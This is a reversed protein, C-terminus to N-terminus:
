DRRASERMGQRRWSDREGHDGGGDVEVDPAFRFVRQPFPISIGAADLARKAAVAVESRIRWLSATDPAHWYRITLQIASDDFSEVWVEPAPHEVVGDAKSVAELLVARARELDTDYDVGISVSTRRRGLTTHNVIPMTLVQASPVMVRQGDFTRLVVTRFNVDDVTGECGGAEVQDGRRFPHRLQIIISALFNALINQGAFALVVGGVGLAGVLPGLRVGVAGLAYVFAIGALVLGVFRGVVEAAAAAGEHRGAARSVAKSLVKAILIGAAAIAGAQIWDSATLGQKVVVENSQAVVSLAPLM